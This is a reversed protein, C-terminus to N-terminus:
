LVDSISSRKSTKLGNALSDCIAHVSLRLAIRENAQLNKLEYLYNNLISVHDLQTVKPRNPAESRGM